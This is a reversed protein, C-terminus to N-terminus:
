PCPKLHCGGTGRRSKYNRSHLLISLWHDLYIKALQESTIMQETQGDFSLFGQNLIPGQIMEDGNTTARPPPRRRRAPNNLIKLTNSWHLIPCRAKRLPGTAGYGLFSQQYTDNFSFLSLRLLRNYLVVLRLGANAGAVTSTKSLM